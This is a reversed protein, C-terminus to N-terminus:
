ACQAAEEAMTTLEARLAGLRAGLAADEALDMAIRRVGYLVSTHDRGGIAQAIYPLSRGTMHRALYMAVHRARVIRAERRASRLDAVDVGFNEAVAAIIAAVETM